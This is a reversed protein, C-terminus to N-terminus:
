QKSRKALPNNSLEGSFCRNFFLLMRDHHTGPWYITNCQACRTYTDVTNFIYDPVRGAVEEHTVPSLLSNCQLCRSFPACDSRNLHFHRIVERLQLEPNNNHIFLYPTSIYGKLVSTRRTLLIRSESEAKGLIDKGTAARSYSADIGIIRLLKSLRGLMCDCIFSLHPLSPEAM